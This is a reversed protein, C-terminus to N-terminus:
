VNSSDSYKGAPGEPACIIRTVSDYVILTINAKIIDVWICHLLCFLGQGGPKVVLIWCESKFNRM